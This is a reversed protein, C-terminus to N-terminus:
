GLGARRDGDPCGDRFEVAVTAEELEAAAAALARLAAATRGRRGILRGFDDPAAFVEILSGGHRPTEEVRVAEPTEALALAAVELVARARSM